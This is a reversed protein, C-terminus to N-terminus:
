KCEGTLESERPLRGEALARDLQDQIAKYNVTTGDAM